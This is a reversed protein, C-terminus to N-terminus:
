DDVSIRGVFDDFERPAFPDVEDDHSAPSERRDFFKHESANGVSDTMKGITGDRDDLLGPLFCLKTM